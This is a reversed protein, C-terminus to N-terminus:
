GAADINSKKKREFEIKLQEPAKISLRVKKGRSNDSIHITIDPGITIIDGPKFWKVLAM